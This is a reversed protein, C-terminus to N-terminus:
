IIFLLGNATNAITSIDRETLVLQISEMPLEELLEPSNSVIIQVEQNERINYWGVPIEVSKFYIKHINKIPTALQFNCNFANKKITADNTDFHIFSLTSSM